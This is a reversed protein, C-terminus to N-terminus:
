RQRYGLDEMDMKWKLKRARTALKVSGIQSVRVPRVGCFELTMGKMMHIGPSQYLLRLILPPGDSTIILRASRGKLLGDWMLSEDGHFQFGFGPVFVRDLFGKLLAPMSGWWLPYVFVLHQAWTIDAQARQLGPELPQVEKYGKHLVPDFALAGLDIRRLPAGAQQVGSAYYNALAGCYSESDPHGMIILTRKSTM